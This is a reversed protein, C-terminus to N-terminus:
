KAIRPLDYDIITMDVIASKSIIVKDQYPEVETFNGSKVADSFRGTDPIWAADELVIDFDTKNIVRGTFYNTVTRILYKKGVEISDM